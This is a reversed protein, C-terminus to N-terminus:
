KPGRLKRRVKSLDSLCEGCPWSLLLIAIVALVGIGALIEIM